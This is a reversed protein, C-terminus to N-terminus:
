IGASEPIGRNQWIEDRELHSATRVDIGTAALIKNVRDMHWQFSGHAGGTDADGFSRPNFNSEGQETAVMAAAGADSLGQAKWFDWSEKETAKAEASTPAAGMGKNAGRYGMRGRRAAGIGASGTGDGGGFVGSYVGIIGLAALAPLLATLPAFAAIFGAVMSAVFRAMVVGSILELLHRVGALGSGDPQGVIKQLWGGVEKLADWLLV